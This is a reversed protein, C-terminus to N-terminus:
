IAMKDRRRQEIRNLAIEWTKSTQRQFRQLYMHQSVKCLQVDRVLRKEAGDYCLRGLETLEMDRENYVLDM